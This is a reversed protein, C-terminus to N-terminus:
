PIPLFLPIRSPPKNQSKLQLRWSTWGAQTKDASGEQPAPSKTQSPLGRSHEYYSETDAGRDKWREASRLCYNAQAASKPLMELTKAGELTEEAGPLRGQGDQKATADWQTGDRATRPAGREVGCRKPGQVPSAVPLPARCARQPHTSPDHAAWILPWQFLSLTVRAKFGGPQARGLAVTLSLDVSRRSILTLSSLRVDAM